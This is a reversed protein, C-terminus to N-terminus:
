QVQHQGTIGKFVVFTVLLAILAASWTITVIGWWIGTVGLGAFVALLWFIPVPMAIQRYIGLLVGFLPKKLGQLTFGCVYLILYAPLTFASFHLYGAAIAVVAPDRSFLGALHSAFAYVGVATCASLVFGYGLAHRITEGVRTFKLAGSNQSVLALTAINLGMVPMIAVQEIRTAV